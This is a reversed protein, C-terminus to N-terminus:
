DDIAKYFEVIHDSRRFDAMSGIDIGIEGKNRCYHGIGRRLFTGEQDYIERGPVKIDRFREESSEFTVLRGGQTPNLAKSAALLNALTDEYVVEVVAEPYHEAIIRAWTEPKTKDLMEPTSTSHINARQILREPDLQKGDRDRCNKAYESILYAITEPHCDTIVIPTEGDYRHCNFLCGLFGEVLQTPYQMEVVLKRESEAIEQKNGTPLGREKLLEVLKNDAGEKKIWGEKDYHYMVGLADFVALKVKEESM